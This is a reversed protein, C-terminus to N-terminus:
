QKRRAAAPEHHREYADLLAIAPLLCDANRATFSSSQFLLAIQRAPPSSKSGILGDFLVKKFSESCDKRCAFFTGEMKPSAMLVKLKQALQPNLEVMTDLGRRTVVCADAQGFFVPLVVQSLKTNRAIHGLLQAPSELGNKGLSVTLWPEALSTSPSEWMNLSRGRLDGLNVIGSGARVVLLFEDGGYDDTLVRATDVFPAVKRYEQVTLCVLDVKGGRIAELLRDSPMVWDQNPAMDMKIDITKLLEETWVALAARADNLNVGVVVNESVALRV